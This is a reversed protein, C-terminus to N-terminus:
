ESSFSVQEDELSRTAQISSSRNRSFRAIIEEVGQYVIEQGFGALGGLFILVFQSLNLPEGPEGFPNTVLLLGSGVLFFMVAGIIFGMIPQVLYRMVDQRDFENKSVVQSFRHLIVISGGIGGALAAYWATTLYQYPQPAPGIWAELDIFFGAALLILWILAYLFVFLGWTQSWRRLTHKHILKEKIAAVLYLAEDYRRKDELTIDHAQRLQDLATGVEAWTVSSEHVLRDYLAEIQQDLKERREQALYRTVQKALSNEAPEVQEQKKLALPQQDLSTPIDEPLEAERSVLIRELIL